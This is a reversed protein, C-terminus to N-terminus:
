VKFRAFVDNIDFQFPNLKKGDFHYANFGKFANVNSTNFGKPIVMKDANALYSSVFYFGVSFVVLINM